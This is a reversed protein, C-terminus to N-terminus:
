IREELDNEELKINYYDNVIQKDIIKVPRVVAGNKGIVEGPKLEYESKTEPEVSKSRTSVGTQIRKIQGPRKTDKRVLKSETVKEL